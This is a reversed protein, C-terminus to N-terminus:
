CFHYPEAAQSDHRFHTLSALRSGGTATRNRCGREEVELNLGLPKADWGKLQNAREHVSRLRKQSTWM